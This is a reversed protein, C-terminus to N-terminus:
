TMNTEDSITFDITVPKSHFTYITPYCITHLKNDSEIDLNLHSVLASKNKEPMQDRNSTTIINIGTYWNSKEGKIMRQQLPPSDM